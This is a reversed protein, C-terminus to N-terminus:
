EEVNAVAAAPEVERASRYETPKDVAYKFNLGVYYDKAEAHDSMTRYSPAYGEYKFTACGGALTLLSILLLQTRRM